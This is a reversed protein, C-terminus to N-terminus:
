RIYAAEQYHFADEIRQKQNSMVVMGQMEALSFYNLDTTEASIRPQGSLVRVEFNMAVGQVRNGDPYEIMFDPSTYVGILRVVQVQLGTEEYVERVCTEEASEGPDMGGGPLCWMGNDTRRTLLVKQRTDDFIVACCGARLEAMRGVRNGTVIKTQTM